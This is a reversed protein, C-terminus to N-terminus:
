FNLGLSEVVEIAIYNSGVPLGEERAYSNAGTLTMAGLIGDIPGSYNGESELSRQLATINSATLNVECVGQRWGLEDQSVQERRTVTSYEAPIATRREQAARQERVVEVTGYEAPIAVERTTAPTAVVERSVTRYEAPTDIERTTAPQDIVQRSVTQYVAPIEVLCMIEGTDTTRSELVGTFSSAPGRKWETRAPTVLVQETETRYTAPVQEIRSSAARVLMQESVTEYTAPVLELRTSAERVLVREAITEYQAPIIEVSESAEKVLVRETAETYVAPTLVRAYCQGAVPNAPFLSSMDGSGAVPSSSQSQAEALQRDRLSLEQELTSVRRQAAQLDVLSSNLPGGSAENSTGSAGASTCGTLYVVAPVLLAVSMVKRFSM